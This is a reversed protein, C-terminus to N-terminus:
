STVARRVLSLGVQRHVLSVPPWVLFAPWRDYRLFTAVSLEEDAVHLILHATLFWSSAELRVWERERAAIRWGIVHDPSRHRHLRLGLVFRHVIPVLVRLYGPAGGFAARLWQEASRRSGDTVRATFLDAYDVRALTDVARIPESVHRQWVATPETRSEVLAM